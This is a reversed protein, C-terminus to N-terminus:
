MDVKHPPVGLLRSDVIKMLHSALMIQERATAADLGVHRHSQPNKYSGLAGAMLNRLAEREGREANPDTLPGDNPDFARSALKTGIREDGLRAVTRIAVELRHFASFVALDYRGSIYLPLVERVLESHLFEAPLQSREIFQRVGRRDRLEKARVTPMYWDNTKRPDPCILWNVHLWAWASACADLVKNYTGGDPGGFDRAVGECFAVFHWDSRNEGSLLYELVCGALDPTSLALLTEADPILRRFPHMAALTRMSGCRDIRCREVITLFCARASLRASVANSM